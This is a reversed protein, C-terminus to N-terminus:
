SQKAVRAAKKDAKKKDAWRKRQAEAMRRRAEESRVGKAVAPKATSKASPTKAQASVKSQKAGAVLAKRAKQLAVTAQDIATILDNQAM